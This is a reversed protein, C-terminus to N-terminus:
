SNVEMAAQAEQQQMFLEALPLDGPRTIKINDPHGEVMKPWHGALEMAAAEDTVLRGAAVAAALAERLVGVRFLQPTLARWLGERSVTELVTGAADSRKVTDAVPLGLLGGVPHDALTDLLRDIDEDRLCPRAADHVLVWDEAAAVERLRELGNLVSHCREEGGTCTHIPAATGTPVSWYPDDSAVAVFVAEIRPHNALRLLTHDIVRRGRLALYQKPIDSGMRRGSGAAPVVAWVRHVSESM